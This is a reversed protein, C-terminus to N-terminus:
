GSIWTRSHLATSPRSNHEQAGTVKDDAYDKSLEGPLSRGMLRKDCPAPAGPNDAGDDESQVDDELLDVQATRWPDGCKVYRRGGSHAGETQRDGGVNM